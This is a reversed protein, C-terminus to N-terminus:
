LDGVTCPEALDEEVFEPRLYKLMPGLQDMRGRLASFPIFKCIRHMPPKMRSFTPRNVEELVKRRREDPAVLYLPINLNPQMALLDSMRLLGSYISTTSEVEFAAVIANGRLWLVDILEITRNTAEDFQLPLDGKMRPVDALRQGNLVRNRDNRAVWIDLGMESGLTLLLWQIETHATAEPLTELPSPSGESVPVPPLPEEPQEAPAPEVDQREPVTVAGIESARLLRPRWALQAKSVPRSVPQREADRLAEVVAEGDHPEWKTPSRRVYIGWARPEKHKKFITLRDKLDHIPVGTQPTLSVLPRVRVRCPFTADSWIPTDDRFPPSIVELVGVLRRVVVLYCLLYDGPQIQQVTTWSSERFGSVDAGAAQFERWTTATFLDLWYARTPL